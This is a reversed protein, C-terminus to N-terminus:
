QFDKGTLKGHRARVVIDEYADVFQKFTLTECERIAAVVLSRSGDKAPMDIALGLNIHEPTVLVPKGDVVKYNNNMDPHLMVAKVMAYGIIHTFSIKGGRARALHNNVLTRNEFM